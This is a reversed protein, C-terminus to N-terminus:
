PLTAKVEGPTTMEFHILFRNHDWHSIPTMGPQLIQRLCGFPPVVGMNFAPKSLFDGVPNAPVLRIRGIDKMECSFAAVPPM